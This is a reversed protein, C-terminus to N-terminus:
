NFRLIPGYDDLVLKGSDDDWGSAGYKWITRAWPNPVPVAVQGLTIELADSTVLPLPANVGGDFALWQSYLPVGVASPQAPLQITSVARRFLSSATTSRTFSVFPDVYLRSGQPAGYLSLNLPQPLSAFGLVHVALPQAVQLGDVQVTLPAGPMTTEPFAYHYPAIGNSGICGAGIQRSTGNRPRPRAYADVRWTSIGASPAFQIEIALPGGQWVYNTSFPIVVNFGPVSSGAAAAPPVTFTTSSFVTTPESQWLRAFRVDRVQDPPSAARGLRVTLSGSSSGYAQSQYSTDRRLSLRTLTTGTPFPLSAPDIVVMMRTRGTPQNPLATFPSNLVANGATNAYGAPWHYQAALPVAFAAGALALLGLTRRFSVNM